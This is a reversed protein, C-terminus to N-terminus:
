RVANSVVNDVVSQISVIDGKVFLSSFDKIDVPQDNRTFVFSTFIEGIGDSSAFNHPFLKINNVFDMVCMQQCLGKSELAQDILGVSTKATHILMKVSDLISKFDEDFRPDHVKARLEIVEECIIKAQQEFSANRISHLWQQLMKQMNVAQKVRSGEIENTIDVGVAFFANNITSTTIEWHVGVVSRFVTRYFFIAVTPKALGTGALARATAETEKTNVGFSILPSAFMRSISFGLLQAFVPDVMSYHTVPFEAAGIFYKCKNALEHQHYLPLGNLMYTRENTRNSAHVNETREEEMLLELMDSFHINILRHLEAQFNNIMEMTEMSMEASERLYRWKEKTSSDDHVCKTHDVPACIWFLAINM